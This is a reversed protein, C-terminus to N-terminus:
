YPLFVPKLTQNRFTSPSRQYSTTRSGGVKIWKEPVSAASGAVAGGPFEPSIMQYWDSGDWAILQGDIREYYPAVASYGGTPSDKGSSSTSQCGATLFLVLALAAAALLTYAHIRMSNTKM